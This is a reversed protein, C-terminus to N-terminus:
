FPQGVKLSFVCVCIVHCLILFSFSLANSVFGETVIEGSASGVAFSLCGDLLDGM